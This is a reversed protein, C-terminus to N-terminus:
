ASWRAEVAAAVAEVVAEVPGSADVVVWREPDAAALAAFGAKVRAHFGADEAEL